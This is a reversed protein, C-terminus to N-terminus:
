TDCSAANKMSARASPDVTLLQRVEKTGLALAFSVLSVCLFFVNPAGPSASLSCSARAKITEGLRGPGSLVPGSLGWALLTENWLEVSLRDLAVAVGGLPLCLWQLGVKARGAWGLHM